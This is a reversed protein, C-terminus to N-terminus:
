VDPLVTFGYPFPRPDTRPVWAVIFTNGLFRRGVYGKYFSPKKARCMLDYHTAPLVLPPNLVAVLDIQVWENGVLPFTWGSLGYRWVNM